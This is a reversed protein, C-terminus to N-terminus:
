VALEPLKARVHATMTERVWRRTEGDALRYRGLLEAQSELPLGAITWRAALREFLLEERRQWADDGSAAASLEPARLKALTAASLSDRLTLVNGEADTYDTTAAAPADAETRRRRQRRGVGAGYGEVGRM